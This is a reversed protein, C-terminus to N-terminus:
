DKNIWRFRDLHSADATFEGHAWAIRLKGNKFKKKVCVIVPHLDLPAQYYVYAHNELYQQLGYWCGFSEM